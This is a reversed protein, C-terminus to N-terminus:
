KEFTELLRRLINYTRNHGLGPGYASSTLAVVMKYDPIAVLVNGGNGSAFIYDFEKAGFKRKSRYWMLGYSDAFPNNEKLDFVPSALQKVWSSSVIQKDQWKGENAVVYGIKAFDLTSLYLNGMGATTGTADSFWYYQEIGLPQFLHKEAFAALSMGSVEEIIAGTLLANIDAYVWARGPENVVPIKLVYEKWNKSGVWRGVHGSTSFDDTDADLGSSMTLLDRLTIASLSKHAYPYKESPFFSLVDQDISNVLNKDIAIGMLLATVSKGASRIDHITARWYTHFYEELVLKGDKIVVLGRFDNPPTDNILSILNAVSDAQFGAEELSGMPMQWDEQSLGQSCSLISSLMLM